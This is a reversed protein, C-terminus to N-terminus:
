MKTSERGKKKFQTYFLTFILLLMGLFVVCTFFIIASAYSGTADRLVGGVPGLTGFAVVRLLQSVGYVSQLKEVGLVRIIIFVDLVYMIGLGVGIFIMSALVMIWNSTGAIIAMPAAISIVQSVGYLIRTKVWPRDVTAACAIRTVLDAMAAATMASASAQLDYGAENLIFPMTAFINLVSTISLCTCLATCIVLPDKLVSPRYHSLFKKWIGQDKSQLAETDKDNNNNEENKDLFKQSAAPNDQQREAAEDRLTSKKTHWEVPHFLATAPVALMVVCGAIVTAWEFPFAQQLLSALQPMLMLGVSGGTVMIGNALGLRKKFYKASMHYCCNICIGGGVGCLLSFSILLYYPNSVSASLMLSCSVMFASMMAVPRYTFKDSLPGALPGALNWTLSQFNFLWASLTPTAGLERLRDGYFIGFCPGQTTMMMACITNAFVICWGWGGDPPEYTLSDPKTSSTTSKDLIGKDEPPRDGKVILGKEQSTMLPTTAEFTNNPSMSTQQINNGAM